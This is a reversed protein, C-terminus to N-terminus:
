GAVAAGGFGAGGRLSKVRQIYSDLNNNNTTSIAGGQKSDLGSGLKTEAAMRYSGKSNASTVSDTVTVGSFKAWYISAASASSATLATVAAAAMLIKKMSM